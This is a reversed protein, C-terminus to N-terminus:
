RIGPVIRATRDMYSRYEEGFTDLMLREEEGVRLFYLIGFGVLGAPGAVWNSLLLAQAVAWLWFAAYMPHRIRSYVGSTILAHGERVDLSVSWNRGLEQHTRYFLWLAAGFTLTGIWALVPMFPYNAFRFMRTAIHLYPIVGLGTAAIAILVYDRRSRAAVRVPTRRSRRVHPHRIFYWAITCLAFITKALTATM